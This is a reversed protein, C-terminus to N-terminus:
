YAMAMLFSTRPFYGFLAENRKHSIMDFYKKQLNIWSGRGINEYYYLKSGRSQLNYYINKKNTVYLVM